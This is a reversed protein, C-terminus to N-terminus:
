MGSPYKMYKHILSTADHIAAPATSAQASGFGV